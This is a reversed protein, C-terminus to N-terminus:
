RQPAHSRQWGIAGISGQGSGDTPVDRDRSCDATLTSESSAPRDAKFATRGLTKEDWREAGCALALLVALASM